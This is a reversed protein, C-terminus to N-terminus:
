LAHTGGPSRAMTQEDDTVVPSNHEEDPTHQEDSAGNMMPEASGQSGSGTQESSPQTRYLQGRITRTSFPRVLKKAGHNYKFLVFASASAILAAGGAGACTAWVITVYTTRAPTNIPNPVYVIQGNPALYSSCGAGDANFNFLIALTAHSGSSSTESETSYCNPPINPPLTFSTVNYITRARMVVIPASSNTPGTSNSPATANSQASVNTAELGRKAVTPSGFIIQNLEPVTINIFIPGNLYIDEDVTILPLEIGSAGASINGAELVIEGRDSVYLSGNYLNVPVTVNWVEEVSSNGLATLTNNYCVFPPPPLELSCNYPSLGATTVQTALNPVGYTLVGPSVNSLITRRLSAIPGDNVVSGTANIVTMVVKDVDEVVLTITWNLAVLLNDVTGIILQNLLPPTYWISDNFHMTMNLGATVTLGNFGGWTTCNSSSGSWCIKTVGTNPIPVNASITVNTNNSNLVQTNQVNVEIIGVSSYLQQNKQKSFVDIQYPFGPLIYLPVDGELDYVLNSTLNVALQTVTPYLSVLSSPSPYITFVGSPSVKGDSQVLSYAFSYLALEDGLNPLSTITGSSYTFNLSSYVTNISVSIGGVTVQGINGPLFDNIIFGVISSPLAYSVNIPVVVAQGLPVQYTSSALLMEPVKSLLTVVTSIVESCTTPVLQSCLQYTLSFATGLTDSIINDLLVAIGGSTVVATVGSATTTVNTISLGGQSIVGQVPVYLTSTDPAALLQPTSAKPITLPLTLAFQQIPGTATSASHTGDSYTCQFFVNDAGSVGVFPTYTANNNNPNWSFLTAATNPVGPLSLLAMAPLVPFYCNGVTASSSAVGPNLTLIYSLNTLVTVLGTVLGVVLGLLGGLLGSLLAVLGSVISPSFTASTSLSTSDVVSVSTTATVVTLLSAYAPTVALSITFPTQLTVTASNYPTSFSNYACSGGGLNTGVSGVWQCMEIPTTPTSISITVTDNDPDTVLFYMRAYVLTSGSYLASVLPAHHVDTINMTYTGNTTAGLGNDLMYNIPIVFPGRSPLYLAFNFIAQSVPYSVNLQAAAGSGALTLNGSKSPLTLLTITASSTVNLALAAFNLQQRTTNDETFSITKNLAVPLVPVLTLNLNMQYTDWTGCTSIITYNFADSAGHYTFPLYTLNSTSVTFGVHVPVGLSLLTGQTPLTEIIVQTIAASVPLILSSANSLLQVPLTVTSSAPPQNLSTSVSIPRFGLFGVQSTSPANLVSANANISILLQASQTITNGVQVSSANQVKVYSSTSIVPTVASNTLLQVGRTLANTLNFSGWGLTTTAASETIIPAASVSPFSSTWASSISGVWPPSALPSYFIPIVWSSQVAATFNAWTEGSADIPNNSVILLIQAANPAQQSLSWGSLIETALVLLQPGGGIGNGSLLYLPSIDNVLTTLDNTFTTPGSLQLLENSTALDPNDLHLRISFNSGSSAFDRGFLPAASSTGQSLVFNLQKALAAGDTTTLGNGDLLVQVQVPLQGLTTSASLAATAIDAVNWFASSIGAPSM